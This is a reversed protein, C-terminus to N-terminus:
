AAAVLIIMVIILGAERVRGEHSLNVEPSEYLKKEIKTNM